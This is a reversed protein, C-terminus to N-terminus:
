VEKRSSLTLRIAFYDFESWSVSGGGPPETEQYGPPPMATM